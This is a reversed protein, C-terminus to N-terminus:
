RPSTQLRIDPLLATLVLTLGAFFALMWFAASYGAASAVIGAAASSLSGGIGQITGILGRSASYRGAGAMYQALLLPLLVDWIGSSVADFLQAAVVIAANSVMAFVLARLVLALCALSLFRKVGWTGAARGAVAAVPVTLFQVVLILASALATELGPHQLGLRQGILPLMAGNAFHFCAAILALTLLRTNKALAWIGAPKGLACDRGRARDHDISNKPISLIALVAAAGFFPVLFFVAREGWWWGAGGALVAIVINGARDWIVNRALHKPLVAQPVLGLTLAAVTPAFIGGLIAMVLGAIFVVPGTPAQQIAFACLSLLVVAGILLSRKARVADIVAGVPVHLLIGILGAGTFVAGVGAATWGAATVLFVSVFPGLGGQVDALLFNVADLRRCTNSFM